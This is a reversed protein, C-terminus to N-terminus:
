QNGNGNKKGNSTSNKKSTNNKEAEDRIAFILSKKKIKINPKRKRQAIVQNWFVVFTNNIKM